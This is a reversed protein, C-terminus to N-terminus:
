WYTWVMVWQGLCRDTTCRETRANDTQRHMYGDTRADTHKDTRGVMCQGGMFKHVWGSVRGDM